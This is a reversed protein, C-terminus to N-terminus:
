VGSEFYQALNGAFALLFVLTAMIWFPGYLDPSGEVKELFKSTHPSIVALKLREFVEDTTVNFFTQYFRVDCYMALGGAHAGAAGGEAEVM